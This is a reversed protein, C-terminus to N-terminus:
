YKEFKLEPLYLQLGVSAIPFEKEQLFFGTRNM